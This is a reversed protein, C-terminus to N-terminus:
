WSRAHEAKPRDPVPSRLANRLKVKPKKPRPSGLRNGCRTNCEWCAAVLEGSVSAGGRCVPVVHDVTASHPHPWKLEPNLWRGCWNCVDSTALIYARRRRYIGTAKDSMRVQGTHESMM